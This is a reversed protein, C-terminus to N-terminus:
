VVGPPVAQMTMSAVQVCSRLIGCRHYGQLQAWHNARWTEQEWFSKALPNLLYPCRPLSPFSSLSLPFSPNHTPPITAFSFMEWVPFSDFDPNWYHPHWGQNRSPAWSSALCWISARHGWYSQIGRGSSSLGHASSNDPKHPGCMGLCHLHSLGDEGM